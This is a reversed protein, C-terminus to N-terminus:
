PTTIRRKIAQYKLFYFPFTYGFLKITKTEPCPLREKEAKSLDVVLSLPAEKILPANLVGIGRAEVGRPLLKPASLIVTNEKLDLKTRDDAVLRFGLSILQIALTSKGSKSKGLILVGKGDTELATGHILKM